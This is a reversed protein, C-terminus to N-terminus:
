ETDTSAILDIKYLLIQNLLDGFRKNSYFEKVTAKDTIENQACVFEIEDRSLGTM